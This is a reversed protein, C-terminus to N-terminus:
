SAVDMATEGLNIRTSWYEGTKINEMWPIDVVPVNDRVLDFLAQADPANQSIGILGVRPIDLAERLRAEAGSPLAVLRIALAQSKSHSATKVLLPLDAHMVPPQSSRDLFVAALNKNQRGTDPAGTEGPDPALGNPRTSTAETELSGHTKNFGVTIFREIEPRTPRDIQDAALQSPNTM